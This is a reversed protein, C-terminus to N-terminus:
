LKVIFCLAYFPPENSPSDHTLSAVAGAPAETTVGTMASQTSYGTAVPTATSTDRAGWGALAGTTSSNNQEVHAHGPDTVPHTHDIIGTHAAHTHTASGGTTGPEGSAGKIFRDRLDPTGNQGNCLAWGAPINAVLGGWMAIIGAPIGAGDAGPPGQPGPTGAAMGLTKRDIATLVHGPTFWGSPALTPAELRLRDQEQLDTLAAGEAADLDPTFTYRRLVSGDDIPTVSSPARVLSAIKPEWSAPADFTSM